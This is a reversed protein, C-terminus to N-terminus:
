LIAALEDLWLKCDDRAALLAIPDGGNPLDSHAYMKMKKMLDALKEEREKAAAIHPALADACEIRVICQPCPGDAKACPERWERELAELATPQPEVFAPVARNLGM